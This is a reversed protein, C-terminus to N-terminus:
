TPKSATTCNVQKSQGNQMQFRCSICVDSFLTRRNYPMLYPSIILPLFSKISRFTEVFIFGFKFIQNMDNLRLDDNFQLFGTSLTVQGLVGVVISCTVTLGTYCGTDLFEFRKDFIRNQDFFIGAVRFVNTKSGVYRDAIKGIVGREAKRDYTCEFRVNVFM